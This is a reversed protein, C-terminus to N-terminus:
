DEGRPKRGRAGIWDIGMDNTVHSRQIIVDKGCRAMDAADFLPEFETSVYTKGRTWAYDYSNELM